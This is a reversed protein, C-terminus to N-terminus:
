ASAQSGSLRVHGSERMQVRGKLALFPSEFFRWSIGAAIFSAAFTILVSLVSHAEIEIGMLNGVLKRAIWSAPEHLLYLGYAIQGTYVLPPLRLMRTLGSSPSMLIWCLLSACAFDVASYGISRMLPDYATGGPTRRLAVVFIGAAAAAGAILARCAQSARPRDNARKLLIALIGGMALADMRCPMLVYGAISSNPIFLVMALRLLPAAIACGWLFRLLSKRSLLAVAAPFLLYFQEEVQLSWLTAFSLVPPLSNVWAARFNGLYAVFWGAGGWSRMAESSAQDPRLIAVLSFFGLCLYYLPFIRLARRALFNRYGNKEGFANLLIGTILYGSLVFFLDVGMWGAEGVFGIWNGKPWCHHLMVPVIAFARLGDLEAIRAPPRSADRTEALVVQTATVAGDM